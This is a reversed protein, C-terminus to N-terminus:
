LLMVTIWTVKCTNLDSCLHSRQSSLSIIVRLEWMFETRWLFTTISNSLSLFTAYLHLLFLFIHSLLSFSLFHIQHCHSEFRLGTSTLSYLLSEHFATPWHHRETEVTDTKFTNRENMMRLASHRSRGRLNILMRLQHLLQQSLCGVWSLLYIVKTSLEFNLQKVVTQRLLVLVIDTDLLPSLPTLFPAASTREETYTQRNQAYHNLHCVSKSLIFYSCLMSNTHM